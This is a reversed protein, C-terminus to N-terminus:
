NKVLITMYALSDYGNDKLLKVIGQIYQNNHLVVKSFSQILKLTLNDDLGKHHGAMGILHLKVMSYLVCLFIYSDWMSMYNGFPMMEKFYENVLYNELIYEKEKLYPSLYEKYNEDYKALVNELQEGEIYGIGLLTEKLCDLYRQSTVGQLVKKDTMEKALRMQIQINTPVKEIEEKFSGSEIISNMIELMLPLDNLREELYLAEIKEYVIGLIILREGLNYNRNQLLSLSFIRIDWFYRQPKNLFLHGETDFNSHLKIRVDVDEEIHEFAIGEPNLLGLRAIEPCSMTASREFKGDVKRLYRPYLACTDSLCKEGLTGQIKCLMKEDLFPCRGDSEMKIKGYSEDSKQNHKRNVAKEFIPKLEQHNVKKYKLYTEKNIDVKWGICCSDECAPGICHFNKMYEPQLVIRKRDVMFSAEKTPQIIGFLALFFHFDGPGEYIRVKSTLYSSESKTDKKYFEYLIM